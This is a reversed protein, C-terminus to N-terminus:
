WVWVLVVRGSVPQVTGLQEGRGADCADDGRRFAGRSLLGGACWGRRCLRGSTQRTKSDHDQDGGAHVECLSIMERWARWGARRGSLRDRCCVRAAGSRM